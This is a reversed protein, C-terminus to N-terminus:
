QYLARLETELASYDASGITGRDRLSRLTKLLKYDVEEKSIGGADIQEVMAQEVADRQRSDLSSISRLWEHIERRNRFHLPM